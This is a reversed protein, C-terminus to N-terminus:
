FARCDSREAFFAAHAGAATRALNRALSQLAVELDYCPYLHVHTDAVVRTAAPGPNLV